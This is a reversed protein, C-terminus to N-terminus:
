GPARSHIGVRPRHHLPRLDEELRQGVDPGELALGEDDLVPTRGHLLGVELILEGLVHKEQLQDAHPGHDHVPAPGLDPSEHLPQALGRLEHAAHPDGVRLGDLDHLHDEHALDVLLDHTEDVQVSSPRHPERALVAAEEAGALAHVALGVPGHDVDAEHALHLRDVGLAGTPTPVAPSVYLM